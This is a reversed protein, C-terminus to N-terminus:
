CRLLRVKRCPCLANDEEAHPATRAMHVSKIVLGLEGGFASCRASTWAGLQETRFPVEHLMSLASQPNGFQKGIDRVMGIFEAQQAGHLSIQGRM